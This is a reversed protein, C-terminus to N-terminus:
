DEVAVVSEDHPLHEQWCNIHVALGCTRCGERTRPKNGGAGVRVRRACVVCPQAKERHLQPIHQPEGAALKPTHWPRGRKKRSTFIGVLANILARRFETPSKAAAPRPSVTTAYQCVLVWANNVAMDILFWALRPWWRRSKRGPRSYSERQSFVDVGRMWKHYEEVVEPCQVDVKKERRGGRTSKRWRPVASTVMPDCYTSLLNVPKQDKWSVVVINGCQRYIYQGEELETNLTLLTKPFAERNIRTTAVAHFGRSYLDKFLPVSSFYGDMGIIHWRQPDLPTLLSNVVAATQGTESKRKDVKGQYVELNYVYGTASEVLLSIKFGTPITKRLVFQVLKSRGQFGVMPRTSLSTSLPTTPRRHGPGSSSTSSESRASATRWTPNRMSTKSPSVACSISFDIAHSPRRSSPLAWILRGTASPTACSTSGMCLVCGIFALLEQRDTPPPQTKKEEEQRAAVPPVIANVTRGTNEKRRLRRAVAYANTREVVADIFAEPLLQHFFDMPTTCNPPPPPARPVFPHDRLPTRARSWGQTQKEALMEKWKADFEELQKKGHKKRKEIRSRVASLLEDEDADARVVEEEEEEEM